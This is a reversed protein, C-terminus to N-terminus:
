LQLERLLAPLYGLQPDYALKLEGSRLRQGLKEARDEVPRTGYQIAPHDLPLVYSGDLGGFIQGSWLLAMAAAAASACARMKTVPGGSPAFRDATLRRCLCTPSRHLLSRRKWQASPMTWVGTFRASSGGM